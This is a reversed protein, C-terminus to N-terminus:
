VDHSQQSARDKLDAVSAVTFSDRSMQSTTRQKSSESNASLSFDYKPGTVPVLNAPAFYTDVIITHWIGHSAILLIAMIGLLV